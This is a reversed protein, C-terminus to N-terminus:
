REWRRGRRAGNTTYYWTRNTENSGMIAIGRRRGSDVDTIGGHVCEGPSGVVGSPVGADETVTVSLATDALVPADNVPTIDVTM